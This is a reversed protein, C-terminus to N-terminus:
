AASRFGTRAPATAKAPRNQVFFGRHKGLKSQDNCEPQQPTQRQLPSPARRRQSLCVRFTRHTHILGLCSLALAEQTCALEKCASPNSQQPVQKAVTRNIITFLLVHLFVCLMCLMWGSGRVACPVIQVDPSNGYSNYKSTPSRHMCCVATDAQTDRKSPLHRVCWEPLKNESTSLM